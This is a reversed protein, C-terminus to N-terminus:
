QIAYSKSKRAVHTKVHNLKTLEELRKSEYGTLLRARKTSMLQEYSNIDMSRKDTDSLYANHNFVATQTAM